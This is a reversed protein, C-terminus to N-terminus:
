SQKKVKGLRFRNGGLPVLEIRHPKGEPWALLDRKKLWEKITADRFEPCKDWFSDTLDKELLSKGVQIKVHSWSKKLHAKRYELGVRIGYAGNGNTWASVYLPKGSNPLQQQPQNNM